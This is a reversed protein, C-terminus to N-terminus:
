SRASKEEEGVPETSSTFIEPPKTDSIAFWVPGENRLMDVILPYDKEKFYVTAGSLNLWLEPPPVTSDDPVFFFRGIPINDRILHLEKSGGVVFKIGYTDIRWGMDMYEVLIWVDNPCYLARITRRSPRKCVKLM